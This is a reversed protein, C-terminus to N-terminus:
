FRWRHSGQEAMQIGAAGVYPHVTAGQVDTFPEMRELIGNELHKRQGSNESSAYLLIIKIKELNRKNKDKNMRIPLLLPKRDKLRNGTSSFSITFWLQFRMSSYPPEILDQMEKSSGLQLFSKYVWQEKGFCSLIMLFQFYELIPGMNESLPMHTKMLAKVLHCNPSHKWM